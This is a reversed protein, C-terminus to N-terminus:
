PTQVLMAALKQLRTHICSHRQAVSMTSLELRLIYWFDNPPRASRWVINPVNQPKFQASKIVQVVVCCSYLKV